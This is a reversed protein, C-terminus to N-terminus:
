LFTNTAAFKLDSVNILFLYDIMTRFSALESFLKKLPLMLAVCDLAINTQAVM